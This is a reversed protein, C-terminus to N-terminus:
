ANTLADVLANYKAKLDNVLTVVADYEAKTPAEGAAAAGDTKTTKYTSRMLATKFSGSAELDGAVKVGTFVTKDAM